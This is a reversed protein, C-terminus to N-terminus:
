PGDLTWTDPPFASTENIRELTTKLERFAAWDRYVAEAPMGFNAHGKSEITRRSAGPGNWEAHRVRGGVLKFRWREDGRAYAITLTDGNRTTQELTAGEPARLVGLMAWALSAPPILGQPLNPPVTQLQDGTLVSRM